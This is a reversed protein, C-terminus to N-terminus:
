ELVEEMSGFWLGWLLGRKREFDWGIWLFRGKPLNLDPLMKRCSLYGVGGCREGFWRKLRDWILEDRRDM